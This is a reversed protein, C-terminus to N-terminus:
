TTRSPRDPKAQGAGAMQPIAAATSVDFAMSVLALSFAVVYLYWLQLVGLMQVFPISAVLAARIVHLSLMLRRRDFRDVYAGAFVGLLPTPLIEAAFLMGMVLSSGTLQYAIWPLAFTYLGDGLKSVTLGALFALFQPSLGALEVRRSVQRRLPISVYAMVRVAEINIFKSIDTSIIPV